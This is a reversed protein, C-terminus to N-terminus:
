EGALSNLVRELDSLFKLMTKAEEHNAKNLQSLAPVGYAILQSKAEAVSAISAKGTTEFDKVAIRIAADAASRAKDLESNSPAFEPWIVQGDPKLVDSRSLVKKAEEKPQTAMRPTRTAVDYKPEIPAQMLRSNQIQQNVAQQYYLNAGANAWDAWASYMNFRATRMGLNLQAQVIPNWPSVGVGPLGYQAYGPNYYIPGAYQNANYNQYPGQL